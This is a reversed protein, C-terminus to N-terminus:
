RRGAHQMMMRYVYALVEAVARYLHPPIEQDMKVSKYLAQALPPNEVLPIQHRVALERIRLALYNRGKAVVIPVATAGHEYRLAVAYHTPNVIVATATPVRKMMQMRLFDRRLRRIRAKIHPDGESEKLEDRVEQRTMKLDQRYRRYQRGLDILGFLTFVGAAKWLLDQIVGGAIVVGHNTGMLPLTLFTEAHSRAVLSIAGGFVLLMLVGQLFAPVNRRFMETVQTKPNLRNWSPTLKKLSFGFRTTLLQAALTVGVLLGGGLFLPWVM